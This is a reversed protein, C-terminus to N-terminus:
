CTASCARSWSSRRNQSRRRRFADAGSPHLPTRTRPRTAAATDGEEASVGRAAILEAVKRITPAEFLVSIPFDTNWTKRIQAFLRVAILSHGGLDFFSDYAGIRDVGLLDAWFGALRTEIAGEPAVFESDLEPRQFKQESSGVAETQSAQAILADLDMSSLIVQPRDAALARFFLGAGEEAHIGQTLNHRLREEAPSLPRAAEDTGTTEAAEANAGTAFAAGSEMRRISFGTVEVCVEGQPTAITVDFSAIEGGAQNDASGRVWSVVEAPLPRYVRVSRYSVPVWLNTPKYGEILDMAWGTALDMLGPHLLFGKDPDSKAAEPLALRAIGEGDGLATSQLVHWRPGFKLHAEQRSRLWAGAPATAPAGCRAAIADIDLPEPARLPLLSLSAQANMEFTGNAGSEVTFEYGTDSRPMTVRIDRPAADGVALPRLFYLDRIEFAATEGQARLAEAALELYGTGPLLADGARTRHDDLVWLDRTQYSATFRRNGGADFTKDQLLPVDAPLVPAPDGGGTRAAMADAAMGVDAWIGWDIARVRTKGTSRSKAYANLYENAAVYDVQGAPATATSTSSFLVLWDLDGDPFVTELVQTGHIKPAFVDEIETMNKTLILGDEILGAAHIVGNVPGFEEEIRARADRMDEVNSVDAGICLM